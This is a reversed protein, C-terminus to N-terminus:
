KRYKKYSVGDVTVTDGDSSPNKGNTGSAGPADSVQGGTRYYNRYYELYSVKEEPTKAYLGASYQAMREVEEESHQQQLGGDVSVGSHSWQAAAMAAAANGGEKSVGIAEPARYYSVGVLKDDITPPEAILQNHLFMADTVTNMEVYCVGRSTNTLGDRGIRISRRRFM